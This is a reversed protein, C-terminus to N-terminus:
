RGEPKGVLVKYANIIEGMRTIHGDWGRRISKIVRVIDLSTLLKHREENHLRRWNGAV